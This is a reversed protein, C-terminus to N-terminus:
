ASSPMRSRPKDRPSPSTYLLCSGVRLHYTKLPLSKRKHSLPAQTTSRSGVGPLKIADMTNSRQVARIVLNEKEPEGSQIQLCCRLASPQLAHRISLNKEPVGASDTDLPLCLAAICTYYM